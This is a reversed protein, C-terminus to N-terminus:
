RAGQFFAPREILRVMSNNAVIARVKNTALPTARAAVLIPVSPGSVRLPV